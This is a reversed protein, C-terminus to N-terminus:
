SVKQKFPKDKSSIHGCYTCVLARYTREKLDVLKVKVM